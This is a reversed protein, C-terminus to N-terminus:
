VRRASRMAEDIAARASEFYQEDDDGEYDGLVDQLNFKYDAGAQRLLFNLRDTDTFTKDEQM